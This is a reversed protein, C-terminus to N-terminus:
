QSWYRSRMNELKTRDHTSFFSDSTLYRGISLSECSFCSLCDDSDSTFTIPLSKCLMSPFISRTLEWFMHFFRMQILSTPFECIPFVAMIKRFIGDHEISLIFIILIDYSSM